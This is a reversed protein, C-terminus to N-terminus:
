KLKLENKILERMLESITMYNEFAKRRIKEHTEEDILFNINKRKKNKM